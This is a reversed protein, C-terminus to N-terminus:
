SHPSQLMIGDPNAAKKTFTCLRAYRWAQRMNRRAVHKNLQNTHWEAIAVKGERHATHMAKGSKVLLAHYKWWLFVTKTYHHNISSRAGHVLHPNNWVTRLAMLSDIGKWISNRVKARERLTSKRDRAAKAFISNNNKATNNAFFKKATEVLINELSFMALTANNQEQAQMALHFNAELEHDVASLFPQRGEGTLWCRLLEDHNWAVQRDRCDSQNCLTRAPITFTVPLHDHKAICGAGQITYGV